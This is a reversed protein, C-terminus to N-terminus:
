AQLVLVEGLRAEGGGLGYQGSNLLDIGVGLRHSVKDGDSALHSFPLM